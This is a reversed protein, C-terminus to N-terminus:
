APEQEAYITMEQGSNIVLTGAYKDHWGQRNKDWLFAIQILLSVIFAVFFLFLGILFLVISGGFRSDGLQANHSAAVAIFMLLMPLLYPAVPALWRKFIMGDSPTMGFYATIVRIGLLMKGVTQGRTNLM